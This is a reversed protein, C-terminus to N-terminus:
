TKIAITPSEKQYRFDSSFQLNNLFFPKTFVFLCIRSDKM